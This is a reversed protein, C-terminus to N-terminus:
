RKEVDNNLFTEITSEEDEEVDDGNLKTAAKPTLGFEAILKVIQIQADNQVKILPHKIQAGFRDNVMIGDKKIADRCQIFISYNVALMALSGLWEPAIAKYRKKIYKHVEWMYKQVEESYDKYIKKAQNDNIKAM